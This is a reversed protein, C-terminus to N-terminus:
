TDFLKTEFYIQLFLIHFVLSDCCFNCICLIPSNSVHRQSKFSLFYPCLYQVLWNALRIWTYLKSWQNARYGFFLFQIKNALMYPINVSTSWVTFFFHCWMVWIRQIDYLLILLCSFTPYVRVLTERLWYVSLIYYTGSIKRHKTYWNM